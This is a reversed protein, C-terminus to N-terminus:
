AIGSSAAAIRRARDQGWTEPVWWEEAAPSGGGERAGAGAIRGWAKPLGRHAGGKKRFKVLFKDPLKFTVYLQTVKLNCKVWFIM